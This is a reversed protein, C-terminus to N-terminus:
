QSDSHLARAAQPCGLGDHARGAIGFVALMVLFSPCSDLVFILLDDIVEFGHDLLVEVVPICETNDVSIGDEHM